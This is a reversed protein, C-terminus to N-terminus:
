VPEKMEITIESSSEFIAFINEMKVEAVNIESFQSFSEVSIFSMDVGSKVMSAMIQVSTEFSAFIEMEFIAALDIETIEAFYETFIASIDKIKTIELSVLASAVMFQSEESLSIDMKAFLDFFLTQAANFKSMIASTFEVTM